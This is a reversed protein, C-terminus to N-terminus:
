LKRLAELARKIRGSFSQRTSLFYDRVAKRAASDEVTARKELRVPLPSIKVDFSDTDSCHTGGGDNGINQLLSTGPYLTLKGKLLASAYWRIAWSDNKGEIQRKLMRTYGFSGDMDFTRTLRRKMLEALLGCGDPEFLDWGRKWTGWGWCDAGKLFVTDPLKGAVPYMYGAVSIVDDDDAYLDLASNMFDLFHPSTVMDDELVIIRGNRSVVETVGAIISKALGLNHEREVLTVNRFGSVTKLFERLRLVKDRDADRKPGDSFITIDTAAAHTNRSLAELTRQAHSLRNYVFLAVPALPM